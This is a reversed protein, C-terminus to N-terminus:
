EERPPITIEINLHIVLTSTQYKWKIKQIDVYVKGDTLFGYIDRHEVSVLEIRSNVMDRVGKILDLISIIGTASDLQLIKSQTTVVKSNENVTQNIFKIQNISPSVISNDHLFKKVQILSRNELPFISNWQEQYDKDKEYLNIIDRFFEDHIDQDM